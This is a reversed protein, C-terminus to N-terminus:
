QEIEKIVQAARQRALHDMQMVNDLSIPADTLGSEGSLRDLVTEVVRAMAVFGIEGAIFADLARENAANFAAGALGGTAMV